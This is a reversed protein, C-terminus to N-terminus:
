IEGPWMCKWGEINSGMLVPYQNGVSAAYCYLSVEFDDGNMAASAFTFEYFFTYGDGSGESIARVITDNRYADFVEQPTKDISIPPIPNGTRTFDPVFHITMIGSGGSEANVIGSEMHNLKEATIVDGNKWNQKIYSM